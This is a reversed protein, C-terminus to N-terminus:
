KVTLYFTAVLTQTNLPAPDRYKSKNQGADVFNRQFQLFGLFLAKCLHFFFFGLLYYYVMFSWPPEPHLLNVRIVFLSISFNLSLRVFRKIDDEGHGPAQTNSLLRSITM